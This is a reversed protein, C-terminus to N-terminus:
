SLPDKSGELALNTQILRPKPHMGRGVRTLFVGVKCALSRRHDGPTLEGGQTFVGEAVRGTFEECAGGQKASSPSRLGRVYSGSGGWSLEM